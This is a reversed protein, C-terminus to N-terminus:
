HKAWRKVGKKTKKVVFSKGTRSQRTTGAPFLTASVSPSPRGFKLKGKTVIQRLISKLRTFDAGFGMLTGGCFSCWTDHCGGGQQTITKRQQVLTKHKYM